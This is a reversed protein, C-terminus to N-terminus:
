DDNKISRLKAPTDKKPELGGITRMKDAKNVLNQSRKYGQEIKNKSKDYLDNFELFSESVLVASEYISTAQDIVKRIDESQKKNNWARNIIQLIAILTTPGVIAIKQRLAEKILEEECAIIYAGEVNMFMIVLDLSETGHTNRYDTSSLSKLHRKVSNIHNKKHEERNKDTKSTLYQSYDLLSVKSDIVVKRNEPLNIIIDPKEDGIKKQENYSLGEKFGAHELVMKLSIEGFQGQNKSGGRTLLTYMETINRSLENTKEYQAQKFSEISNKLESLPLIQNLKEQENDFSKKNQLLIYVILLGIILLLISIELM